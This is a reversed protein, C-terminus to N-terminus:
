ATLAGPGALARLRMNEGSAPATMLDLFAQHSPYWIGLAEDIDQNGVVHGLVASRWLVKGGIQLLLAGLVAMYDTYPKGDPYGAEPRYKNLDVLSAAVRTSFPANVEGM